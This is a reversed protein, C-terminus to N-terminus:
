ASHNNENTPHALTFENARQRIIDFPDERLIQLATPLRPSQIDRLVHLAALRSYPEAYSIWKWAIPEADLPCHPAYALLARRRVYEDPDQVFQRLLKIAEDNGVEGLSVAIQWRADAEPCSIAAQALLLLSDIRLTLRQRLDEIENDRALAYLINAVDGSPSLPSLEDIAADFSGWIEQWYKYDCEWEGYSGEHGDAAWARFKQLAEALTPPPPPLPISKM